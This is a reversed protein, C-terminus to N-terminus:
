IGSEETRVLIAGCDPCFVVEDEPAQRVEALDSGTLTMTCAGCTRARLLAAGTGHGAARRKEYLAGLAEPLASAVADRDRALDGRQRALDALQEDRKQELVGVRSLLEDREAEAEAVSAEQEELREMVVLEIEELDGRRKRLAELEQELAQIDKVSSSAQARDSDRVIRKEVVEVDSEIRGLETRVDDLAGSRSALTKRAADAETTLAAIEAHQALTAAQHQVQQLKTDIAQLRLLEKQEAPSAKM